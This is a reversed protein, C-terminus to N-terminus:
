KALGDRIDPFHGTLHHKQRAGRAIITTYVSSKNNDRVVALIPHVVVVFM